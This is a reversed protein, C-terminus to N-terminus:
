GKQAKGRGDYKKGRSIVFGSPDVYVSGAECFVGNVTITRPGSVHIRHAALFADIAIAVEDGTLSIEVGPGYKTKGDGMRVKPM